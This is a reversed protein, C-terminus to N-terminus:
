WKRLTAGEPKKQKAGLNTTSAKTSSNSLKQETAVTSPKWGTVDTSLGPSKWSQGAVTAARAFADNGAQYSDSQPNGRINGLQTLADAQQNYFNAWVQEQDSLAETHLNMRATRTDANLDTISSNVSRLTDYYSRNIDGQNASWNRLAQLATRLTDSEGAGQSAVQSILDGRERARNALNVFSADSESRDNDDRSGRLQKSRSLYDDLIVRDQQSLTSLINSLKTDRATAFGNALMSELAAVQPADNQKRANFEAVAKNYGDTYTRGAAAGGGGGSSRSSSSSTRTTRRSTTRPAPAPAPPLAVPAPMRAAQAAYRAADAKNARQRNIVQQMQYNSPTTAM